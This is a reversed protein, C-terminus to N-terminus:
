YLDEYNEKYSVNKVNMVHPISKLKHVDEIFSELLITSFKGKEKLCIQPDHSIHDSLNMSNDCDEQELNNENIATFVDVNNADNESWETM